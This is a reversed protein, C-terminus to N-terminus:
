VAETYEISEKEKSGVSIFIIGSIIVFIGMWRFVNLQEGFFFASMLSVWVYSTAIIPYLASVDGGKFASIMIFAGFVYLVMGSILPVNTIIAILNFELKAAGFKYLVQAVSTFITTLIMLGIAWTKTTM